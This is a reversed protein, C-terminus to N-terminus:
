WSKAAIKAANTQGTKCERIRERMYNIRAVNVNYNCDVDITGNYECQTNRYDIWQRQVLKLKEQLEPKILSRLEKYVANLEADSELFMKAACYTRDYSTTPNSCDAMTVTALSALAAVTLIIRNM